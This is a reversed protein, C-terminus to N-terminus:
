GIVRQASSQSIFISFQGAEFVHTWGVATEGIKLELYGGEENTM